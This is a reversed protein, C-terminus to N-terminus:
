TSDIMKPWRAQITSGGGPSSIVKFDGGSLEVREKMSGLGLGKPGKKSYNEDADFGRGNDQITLQIGEDRGALSVLIRDGQSYKAANNMAEQLVRYIPTSLLQPIEDRQIEIKQEVSMNPYRAQFQRCYWTITPLIGLDDLVSPHLDNMINRVEAMTRALVSVIEEVAMQRSSPSDEQSIVKRELSYKIAALDAALGDHLEHSIRKREKEQAVLLRSALHRRRRESERIVEEAKKRETIDRNIGLIRIPQGKANRLVTQRNEVFVQRGDRGTHILEGEWSGSQMVSQRIEAKPLPYRTQLLEHVVQGVAEEKTWGYMQEAGRNWFVIRNEMDRVIIADHAMEILALQERLKEENLRRGLNEAVLNENAKALEATRKKVRMELEERSRQLEKEMRKRETIDRVVSVWGMRKEQDDELPMMSHDTFLMEGSKRKMPFEPLELRGSEQVAAALSKRFEELKEEDVHLFNTTQGLMEEKRYGFIQSAAPNCDLIRNTEADLIFVAERLSAFTKELLQCSDNYQHLRQLNKPMADRHGAAGEVRQPPSKPEHGKRKM